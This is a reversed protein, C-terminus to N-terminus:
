PALDKFRGHPLTNTFKKAAIKNPYGKVGADYLASIAQQADNIFPSSPGVKFIHGDEEWTAETVWNIKVDDHEIISGDFKILLSLLSV